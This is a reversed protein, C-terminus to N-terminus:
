AVATQGKLKLKDVAKEARDKQIDCVATVIAKDPFLSAFQMVHGSGRAGLGILAVKVQPIPAVKLDIVSKGTAPPTQFGPLNEYESIGSETKSLGYLGM